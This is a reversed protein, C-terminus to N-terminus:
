LDPLKNTHSLLDRARTKRLSMSWQTTTTVVYVTPCQINWFSNTVGPWQQFSEEFCIPHAFYPAIRLAQGWYYSWGWTSCGTQVFLGRSVHRCVTVVFILVSKHSILNERRRTHLHSDEFIPKTILTDFLRYHSPHPKYCVCPSSVDTFFKLLFVLDSCCSPFGIRVYSRLM